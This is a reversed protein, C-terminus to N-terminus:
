NHFIRNHLISWGVLCPTGKCGILSTLTSYHTGIRHPINGWLFIAPYTGGSSVSRSLVGVEYQEGHSANVLSLSAIISYPLSNGYPRCYSFHPLFDSLMLLCANFATSSLLQRTRPVSPPGVRATTCPAVFGLNHFGYLSRSISVAWRICYLWRCLNGSCYTSSRFLFPWM